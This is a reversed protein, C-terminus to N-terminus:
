LILAKSFLMIAILAVTLFLVHDLSHSVLRIIKKRKIIILDLFFLFVFLSIILTATNKTFSNSDILPDRNVAAIYIQQFPNTPVPIFVTPTPLITPVPTLSPLVQNRVILTLQPVRTPSITSAIAVNVPTPSIQVQTQASGVSAPVNSRSGFEQVILVTEEGTLNGTTVAFGVDQYNSSLINERHSPSAMWANVAEQANSFGRALNEGAYLYEYGAGKIFVWPTTGDPANHAWYNKTLMDNAKGAAAQSLQQNFALPHLGAKIREQNTLSVLEEVSINANIGLVEPYNNEITPTLVSILLLLTVLFALPQIHLLRARHNNSERPIFLHHLFDLM